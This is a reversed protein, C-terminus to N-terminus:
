SRKDIRVIDDGVACIRVQDGVCVQVDACLPQRLARDHVGYYRWRGDIAFGREGASDPPRIDSLRGADWACQGSAAVHALNDQASQELRAFAFATMRRM